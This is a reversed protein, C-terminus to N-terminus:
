KPLGRAFAGIAAEDEAKRQADVGANHDVTWARMIV